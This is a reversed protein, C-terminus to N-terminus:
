AAVKDVVTAAKSLELVVRMDYLEGGILLPMMQEHQRVLAGVDEFAEPVHMPFGSWEVEVPEGIGHARGNILLTLSHIKDGLDVLM